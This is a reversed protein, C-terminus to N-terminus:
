EIDAPLDSIKFRVLVRLRGEFLTEIRIHGPLALTKLRLASPELKEFVLHRPPYDIALTLQIPFYGDLFRRMNPDAAGNM